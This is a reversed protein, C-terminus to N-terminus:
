YYIQGSIEAKRKFEVLHNYFDINKSDERDTVFSAAGRNHTVVKVNTLEPYEYGGEELQFQVSSIQKQVKILYETRYYAEGSKVIVYKKTSINVWGLVEANRSPPFMYDMQSIVSKTMKTKKVTVEM